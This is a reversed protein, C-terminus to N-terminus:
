PWEANEFSVPLFHCTTIFTSSYFPNSLFTCMDTSEKSKVTVQLYQFESKHPKM